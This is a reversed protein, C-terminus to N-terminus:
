LVADGEDKEPAKEMPYKTMYKVLWNIQAGNLDKSSKTKFHDEMLSQALSTWNTKVATDFMIKLSKATAKYELFRDDLLPKGNFDFPEWSSVDIAPDQTKEPKLAPNGSKPEKDAANGDDDDVDAIGLMSALAYRRSYTIVSGLAQPGPRERKLPISSSISEGSVHLVTTKLFEGDVCQVVCLGCQALPKRVAALIDELIMFRSNFHNNTGRKPVVPCIQQFDILAKAINQM